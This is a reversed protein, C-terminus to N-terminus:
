TRKKTWPFDSGWIRGQVIRKLRGFPFRQWFLHESGPFTYYAPFGTVCLESFRGALLLFLPECINHLGQALDGTPVERLHRGSLEVKNELLQGLSVSVTWDGGGGSVSRGVGYPTEPWSDNNWRYEDAAEESGLERALEALMHDHWVEYRQHFGSDNDYCNAFLNGGIEYTHDDTGNTGHTEHFDVRIILAKGGLAFFLRTDRASIVPVHYRHEDSSIRVQALLGYGLVKMGEIVYGFYADRVFQKQNM